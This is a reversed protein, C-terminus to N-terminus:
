PSLLSLGAAKFRTHGRPEEGEGEGEGEGEREEEGEGEGGGLKQWEHM